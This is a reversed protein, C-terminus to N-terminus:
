VHGWHVASSSFLQVRSLPTRVHKVPLCVCDSAEPRSLFPSPFFSLCAATSGSTLRGGYGFSHMHLFLFMDSQFSIVNALAEFAYMM